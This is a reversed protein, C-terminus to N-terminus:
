IAVALTALGAIALQACLASTRVPAHLRHMNRHFGLLRQPTRVGAGVLVTMGRLAGAAAGIALGGGISASAFGAVLVAYVASSVVVTAVGAGLQLGFGAGYVWGRYGDLWREDVQRRPGPLARGSVEWGLGVIIAVTVLALRSRAPLTGLVLSGLAGTLLGIAAGGAIAAAVYMTATLAWHSGRSREGLPTISALM